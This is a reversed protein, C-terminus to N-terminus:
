GLHSFLAVGQVTFPSPDCVVHPTGDLGHARAVIQLALGCPQTLSGIQCQMKELTISM